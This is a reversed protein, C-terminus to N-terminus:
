LNIVKLISQEIIEAAEELQKKTVTLSPFLCIVNGQSVKYSLGRKLSEYMVKETLATAKTKTKRDLVLEVANLLGAGRIDGIYLNRREIQKLLKRFYRGKEVSQKLLNKSDIYDITALAAAASVPNKEHTYHGISMEGAVNLEEKTIIAALPMVGGGLGKGCVIIDPTIDFNQYAFWKGTRGLCVATEDMILLVGYKDCIRRLEKYYEEPPIQIDTNRITEMILAGVDTERELLYELQKLCKLDCRSCSGMFCRYSNYPIIHECGPLLPGIGNRFGGEGGISISDLSAGHFSDWFSIIKHKGTAVRALKVAMGVASTAGPAFLVKSLKNETLSTLKEALEIAPVNTFRRTSFPLIDLQKKIAAIVEKNAFGVQHVNNGHFDLYPKGDHSVTNIGKSSSLVDICPTSLAQHLFVESDRELLELTENSLNEEQWKSREESINIDGEALSIERQM